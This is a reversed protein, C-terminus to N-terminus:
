VDYSIETVSKEPFTKMQLIAQSIRRDNIYNNFSIHLKENFVHSIYYKGVNLAQSLTKLSLEETYNQDCYNLISKLINGDAARTPQFSIGSFLEGLAALFYGRLRAEQFPDTPKHKEKYLNKLLTPLEPSCAITSNVASCPIQSQFMDRFEPCFDPSFIYIYYDEWETTKFWHIQNPFAIYIDGSRIVYEEEDCGALTKGQLMYIMEIHNHLHPGCNLRHSREIFLPLTRNEYFAQM